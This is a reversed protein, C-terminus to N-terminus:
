TKDELITAEDPPAQPPTGNTADRGGSTDAGAAGTGLQVGSIANGDGACRKSALEAGAIQM